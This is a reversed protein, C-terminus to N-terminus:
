IQSFRLRWQAETWWAEPKDVSSLLHCSLPVTPMQPWRRQAGLKSLPEQLGLLGLEAPEPIPPGVSPWSSLSRQGQARLSFSVPLSFELELPKM